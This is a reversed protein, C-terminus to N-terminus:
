QQVPAPVLVLALVYAGLVVPGHRPLGYFGSVDCVFRSVEVWVLM